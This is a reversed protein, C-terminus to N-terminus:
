ARTHARADSGCYRRLQQAPAVPVGVAFARTAGTVVNMETEGDACDEWEDLDPLRNHSLGVAKRAIRLQDRMLEARQCREELGLLDLGDRIRLGYEERKTKNHIYRMRFEPPKVCGTAREPHMHLLRGFDVGVAVINHM